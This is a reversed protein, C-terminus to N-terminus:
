APTIQVSLIKNFVADFLKLLLYLTSCVTALYYFISSFYKEGSEPAGKLTLATLLKEASNKRVQCGDAISKLKSQLSKSGKKFLYPFKSCSRYLIIKYYFNKLM